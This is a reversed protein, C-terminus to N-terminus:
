IIKNIDTKMLAYIIFKLRLTILKLKWNWNIEDKQCCHTCSVDM